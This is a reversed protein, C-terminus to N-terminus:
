VRLYRFESSVPFDMLSVSQPDLKKDLMILSSKTWNIVLGFYHGFRQIVGMAERLSSSTDGLLLMTDDAYLMLTEHLERYRFGQVGSNSCIYAELPEHRFCVFYPISPM